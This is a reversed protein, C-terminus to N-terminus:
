LIPNSAKLRQLERAMATQQVMAVLLVTSARCSTSAGFLWAYGRSAPGRRWNASDRRASRSPCLAAFDHAALPARCTSAKASVGCRPPDPISDVFTTDRFENRDAVTPHQTRREREITAGGIDHGRIQRRRRDGPDVRLDAAIAMQQIEAAERRRFPPQDDVDVIEIFGQGPRPLPVDFPQGRTEDQRALRVSKRLGVLAFGRERAHARISFPHRSIGVHGRELDPVGRTSMVAASSRNWSAAATARIRLRISLAAARVATSCSKGLMTSSLLPRYSILSAGGSM